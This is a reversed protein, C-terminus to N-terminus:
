INMTFMIGGSLDSQTSEFEFSINQGPSSDPNSLGTESGCNGLTNGGMNFYRLLFATIQNIRGNLSQPRHQEELQGKRPTGQISSEVFQETDKISISKIDFSKERSSLGNYSFLMQGPSFSQPISFIRVSFKLNEWSETESEWAFSPLALCFIIMFVCCCGLFCKDKRDM